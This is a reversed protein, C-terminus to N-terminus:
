ICSTELAKMTKNQDAQNIQDRQPKWPGATAAEWPWKLLCMPWVSKHHSRGQQAVPKYHYIGEKLRRWMRAMSAPPVQSPADTAVLPSAFPTRLCVPIFLIWPWAVKQLTTGIALGM